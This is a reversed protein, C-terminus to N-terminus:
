RGSSCYGDHEEQEEIALLFEVERGEDLFDLEQVDPVDLEVDQEVLGDADFPCDNLYGNDQETDVGSEELGCRRVGINQCEVHQSCVECYTSM